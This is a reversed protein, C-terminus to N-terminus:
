LKLIKSMIIQKILILFFNLRFIKDKMFHLIIIEILKKKQLFDNKKNKLFIIFRTILELVILPIM